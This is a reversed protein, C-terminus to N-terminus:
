IKYAYRSPTQINGEAHGNEEHVGNAAAGNQHHDGNAVKVVKLTNGQKALAEDGNTEMVEM